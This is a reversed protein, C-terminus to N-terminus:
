DAARETETEIEGEGRVGWEANVRALESLYESSKILCYWQIFKVSCVRNNWKPIAWLVTIFYTTTTILTDCKLRPYFHQLTFNEFNRCLFTKNYRECSQGPPWSSSARLHFDCNLLLNVKLANFIFSKINYYSKHFSVLMCVLLCVFLYVFLCAFMCVLFMYVLLVYLCVFMCVLLCVSLWVYMCDFMCVYLLCVFLGVFM